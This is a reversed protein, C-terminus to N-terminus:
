FGIDPGAWVPVAAAVLLTLVVLAALVGAVALRSLHRGLGMRAVMATASGISAAAVSM